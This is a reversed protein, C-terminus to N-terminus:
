FEIQISERNKRRMDENFQDKISIYKKFKEPGILELLEKLYRQNIQKEKISQDESINYSFNDGYKQRLYDHYEKYAQMKEKDNRDKMELYTAYHAAGIVEKAAALWQEEMKDFEKFQDDETNNVKVNEAEEPLDDPNPSNQNIKLSGPTMTDVAVSAKDSDIEVVKPEPANIARYVFWGVVLLLALIYLLVKRKM